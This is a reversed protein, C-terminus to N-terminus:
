RQLWQELSTTALPTSQQASKRSITIYLTDQILLGPTDFERQKNCVTTRRTTQAASMAYLSHHDCAPRQQKIDATKICTHVIQVPLRVYCTAPLLM